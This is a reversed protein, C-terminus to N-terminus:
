VARQYTLSEEATKSRLGVPRSAERVGLNSTMIIITQTFDVTRGRADTLRGDGLVQLLLGLGVVRVEDTSAM